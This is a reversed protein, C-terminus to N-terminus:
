DLRWGVTVPMMMVWFGPELETVVPWYCAPPQFIAKVHFIWLRSLYARVLGSFHGFVLELTTTNRGTSPKYLENVLTTFVRRLTLDFCLVNRHPYRVIPRTVSIESVKWSWHTIDRCQCKMLLQREFYILRARPWGDCHPLKNRALLHIM